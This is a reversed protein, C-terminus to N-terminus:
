IDWQCSKRFIINTKVIGVEASLIVQTDLTMIVSEDKLSVATWRNSKKDLIIKTKVNGTFEVGQKTNRDITEIDV